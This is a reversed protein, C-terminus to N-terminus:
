PLKTGLPLFWPILHSFYAEGGQLFGLFTEYGRFTPTFEWAHAGMHWKGVAHSRYGAEKALVEPLFTENLPVGRPAAGPYAVNCKYRMVYRGTHISARTPSCSPQVYYNQLQRGSAVLGDGM